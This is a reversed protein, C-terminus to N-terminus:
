ELHKDDLDKAAKEAERRAKLTESKSRGFRLRNEAVTKRDEERARRKRYRNLNVVDAM